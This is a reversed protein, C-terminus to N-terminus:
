SINASDAPREGAHRDADLEFWMANLIALALVLDRRPGAAQPLHFLNQLNTAM